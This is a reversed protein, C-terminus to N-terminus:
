RAEHLARLKLIFFVEDRDGYAQRTLSKIKNNTGEMKGNNIPHPWWNLIGTRHTLLTKAMQGLQKIWTAFAEECWQRLFREMCPTFLPSNGCCPWNRRSIGLRFSRNMSSCRRKWSPGSSTKSTPRGPLLLYRTGKIVMKLPGEAERVLARRLDDLKENMLKVIHFQDFVVKVKPFAELVAAWYTGSMDM